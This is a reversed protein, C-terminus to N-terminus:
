KNDKILKGLDEFLIDSLESDKKNKEYFEKMSDVYEVFGEEDRNQIKEYLVGMEKKFLSIVDLSYTNYLQIEAYLKPNQLVFRTFLMTFIRYTPSCLPMHKEFDFGSKKLTKAGVFLNFHNLSQILAMTKDHEKYYMDQLIADKSELLERFEKIFESKKTNSYTFVFGQGKPNKITQAFMPHVSHFEFKINKEKNLREFEEILFTKVSCVEVLIKNELEDYIENLVEIMSNIPVSLFIVDSNRVLECNDSYYDINEFNDSKNRSSYSVNFSEKNFFEVLWSGFGQKGGIVGYKLNQM